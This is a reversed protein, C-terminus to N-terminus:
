EQDTQQESAADRQRRSAVNCAQKNEGTAYDTIIVLILKTGPLPDIPRDGSGQRICSEGRSDYKDRASCLERRSNHKLIKPNFNGLFHNRILNPDCLHVPALRATGLIM